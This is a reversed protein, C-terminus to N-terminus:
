QLPRWDVVEELERDDFDQRWVGKKDLYGVTKYNRGVIAVRENAPPLELSLECAEPFEAFANKM